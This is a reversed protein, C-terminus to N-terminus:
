TRKLSVARIVLGAHLYLARSGHAALTRAFRRLINKAIAQLGRLRMETENTEKLRLEEKGMM